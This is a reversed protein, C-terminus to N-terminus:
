RGATRDTRDPAATEAAPAANSKTAPADTTEDTEKKGCSALLALLLFCIPLHRM